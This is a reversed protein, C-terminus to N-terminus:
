VFRNPTARFALAVRFAETVERRTMYLANPFLLAAAVLPVNKASLIPTNSPVSPCTGLSPFIVTSVAYAVQLLRNSWGTQNETPLRGEGPPLGECRLCFLGCGPCAPMVAM